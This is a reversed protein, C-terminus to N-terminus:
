MGYRPTGDIRLQRGRQVKALQRVLRRLSSLNHASALIDIYPLAAQMGQTSPRYDPNGMLPNLWIVSRSRSKMVRMSEGLLSCLHHEKFKPARGGAGGKFSLRM